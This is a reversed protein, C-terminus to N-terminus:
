AAILWRRSRLQFETLLQAALVLEKGIVAKTSIRTELILVNLCVASWRIKIRPQVM